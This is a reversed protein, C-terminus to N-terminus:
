GACIAGFSICVLIGFTQPWPCAIVMLFKTTDFIMNMSSQVGNITGRIQDDVEQLVQNVSLDAVWLGPIDGIPLLLLFSVFFFSHVTIKM